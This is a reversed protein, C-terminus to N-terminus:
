KAFQTLTCESFILLTLYISKVDRHVASALLEKKRKNRPCTKYVRPRVALAALIEM